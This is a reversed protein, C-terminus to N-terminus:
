WEVWLCETPECVEHHVRKLKGREKAITAEKVNIGSTLIRNFSNEQGRIKMTYIIDYDKLQQFVQIKDKMNTIQIWSMVKLKANTM